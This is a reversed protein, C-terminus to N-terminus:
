LSISVLCSVHSPCYPVGNCVQEAALRAGDVICNLLQADPNSAGQEDDIDNLAPALSGDWRHKKSSEHTTLKLVERAHTAQLEALRRLFAASQRSSHTQYIKTLL